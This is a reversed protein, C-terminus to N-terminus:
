AAPRGPQVHGQEGGAADEEDRRQQRLQIRIEGDDQPVAREVDRQGRQREHGRGAQCHQRHQAIALGAPQGREQLGRSERQPGGEREDREHQQHQAQVTADAHRQPVRLLQRGQDGARDADADRAQEHDATDSGHQADVAPRATAHPVQEDRDEHDDGQREDRVRKTVAQGREDLRDADLREDRLRTAEPEHRAEGAEGEHRDDQGYGAEDGRDREVAHRPGM